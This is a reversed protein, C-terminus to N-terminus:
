SILLNVLRLMQQRFVHQYEYLGGVAVAVTFMLAAAHATVIASYKQKEIKFKSDNKNPPEQLGPLFKSTTSCILSTSVVQLL